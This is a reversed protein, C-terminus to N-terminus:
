YSQITEYVVVGVVVVVFTIFVCIGIGYNFGRADADNLQPPPDDVVDNQQRGSSPLGPGVLRGIVPVRRVYDKFGKLRTKPAPTETLGATEVDMEVMEADEQAHSM